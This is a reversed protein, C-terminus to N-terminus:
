NTALTIAPAVFGSCTRAITRAASHFSVASSRASAAANVSISRGHNRERYELERADRLLGVRAAREVVRAVERPVGLAPAIPADPDGLVVVNRADRARRGGDDDRVDRGARLRNADA